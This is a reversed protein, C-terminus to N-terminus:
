TRADQPKAPAPNSAPACISKLAADLQPYKFVYGAALTATPVVRQGNILIEAVEGFLVYLALGPVPLVAPRHLAKGLAKTFEGNRVSNPATANLAGRVQTQEVAFVFLGIVDDLHVWSTWQKGSGVPGGLGLKFIPLQKELAGGDRGLVIGIRVVATRIGFHKEAKFSQEEWDRCVMALFDTGSPSSESLPEDQTPGYYGIASASVLASVKSGSAKARGMADVILKTGDVRSDYIASKVRDNWRKGLIPAGALNVVVDSDAIRGEWDPMKRTDAISVSHGKAEFAKLLKPGIFGTGGFIIIKM